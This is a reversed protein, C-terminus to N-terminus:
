SLPVIMAVLESEPDALGRTFRTWLTLRYHRLECRKRWYRETIGIPHVTGVSRPKFGTRDRMPPTIHISVLPSLAHEAGDLVQDLNGIHELTHSSFIVEARRGAIKAAAASPYMDLGFQNAGFERRRAGSEIGFAKFGAQLFGLVEYGWSAGLVAVNPQDPLDLTDVVSKLLEVRDKGSENAVHLVDAVPVAQPSTAMGQGSYFTSYALRNLADGRLGTPRYMLGCTTCDRISAFGLLKKHVVPNSASGCNPCTIGTVNGLLLDAIYFTQM